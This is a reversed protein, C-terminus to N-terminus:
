KMAVDARPDAVAAALFAQVVPQAAPELAAPPQPGCLPELAAVAEDIGDNVVVHWPARSEVLAQLERRATRLRRALTQPTESGRAELRRVLEPWSPPLVFVLRSQDPFQRWLNHAGVIDIDFLIDRGAAHLRAIEARSTGYLNGHVEAWEAFGDADRLREFEARPVFWYDVGNREGDRMPRSTHSVSFGRTSPSRQELAHALTTKGAGAPGVLIVLSRAPLSNM